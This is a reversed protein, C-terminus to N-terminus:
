VNKIDEVVKVSDIGYGAFNVCEKSISAVEGPEFIADVIEFPEDIGYAKHLETDKLNPSIVCNYVIFLDGKDEEMDWADVCLARDPKEIVISGELSKIYIERTEKKKNKIKDSNAILDKLTIKNPTKETKKTNLNM